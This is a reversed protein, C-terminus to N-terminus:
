QPGRLEYYWTPAALYYEGIADQIIITPRLISRKSPSKCRGKSYCLRPLSSDVKPNQCLAKSSGTMCIETTEQYDTPTPDESWDELEEITPSIRHENSKLACNGSFDYELYATSVRLHGEDDDKYDVLEEWGSTDQNWRFGLAAIHDTFLDDTDSSWTYRVRDDFQNMRAALREDTPVCKRSCSAVSVGGFTEVVPKFNVSGFLYHLVVGSLTM